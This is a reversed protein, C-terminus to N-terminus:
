RVVRGTLTKEIAGVLQNSLGPVRQLWPQPPADPLEALSGQSDAITNPNLPDPKPPNDHWLKQHAAPDRPMRDPLNIMFKYVFRADSPIKDTRYWLDTDALRALKAGMDNTPPGGLVCVNRTSAHGEWLFTIFRSHADDPVPEVLPAKGHMEHFFADIVARNAQADDPSLQKALAAIRPSDFEDPANTDVALSQSTLLALIALITRLLPLTMHYIRVPSPFGSWQPQQDLPENFSLQESYKRGRGTLM